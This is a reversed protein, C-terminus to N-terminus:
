RLPRKGTPTEFQPTRKELFALRAEAADATNRILVQNRAELALASDLSPAHLNAWMIEKTTSISMPANEAFSAAILLSRDILEEPETVKSILGSRLAEEPLVRRGSMMLEFALAPGVIKPLFYSLGMECGSIGRKVFGDSFTASTSALRVDAAAAIAFGAGVAHGNVAAVVPVPVRHIMRVINGLGADLNELSAVVPDIGGVESGGADRAAVSKVDIGACFARDGAGVIVIARCSRDRAARAMASPLEAIMEPSLSNLGQPRNLTILETSDRREIILDNTM